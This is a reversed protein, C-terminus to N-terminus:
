YDLGNSPINLPNWNAPLSNQVSIVNIGPTNISTVPYSSLVNGNAALAVPENVQLAAIDQLIDVESQGPEAVTGYVGNGYSYASDVSSINLIRRKIAKGSRTDIFNYGAGIVYTFSVPQQIAIEIAISIKYPYKKYESPSMTIGNIRAGGYPVHIGCIYLDRDNFTGRYSVLWTPSFKRVYYVANVVLNFVKRTQYQPDGAANVIVRTPYGPIDGDTYCLNDYREYEIVDYSVDFLKEKTTNKEISEDESTSDSSGSNMTVRKVFTDAKYTVRYTWAVMRDNDSISACWSDGNKRFHEKYNKDFSIDYAIINKESDSYPSRYWPLVMKLRGSGDPLISSKKAAEVILSAPDGILTIVQYERTYTIGDKVNAQGTDSNLVVRLIGM